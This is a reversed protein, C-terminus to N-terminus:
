YLHCQSQIKIGCYIQLMVLHSQIDHPLHFSFAESKVDAIVQFLELSNGGGVGM